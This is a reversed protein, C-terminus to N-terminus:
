ASLAAIRWGATTSEGPQLVRLDTGSNFADPACTMPEVAVTRGRGPHDDPTFIQVWRFEPEAWLEVGGDPGLLRHRVLTDGAAPACGGFAHDLQLGQLPRGRSFDEADAAPRAPGTPLGGELPLATSAALQLTCDDTAATGAGRAFCAGGAILQGSGYRAGADPRGRSAPGHGGAGRAEAVVAADARDRVRLGRPGSTVRPGGSTM